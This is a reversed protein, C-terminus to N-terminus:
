VRMRFSGVALQGCLEWFQGRRKRDWWGKTLEETSGQELVEEDGLRHAVHSVIKNRHRTMWVKM